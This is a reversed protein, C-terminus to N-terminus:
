DLRLGFKIVWNGIRFYMELNVRGNNKQWNQNFWLGTFTVKTEVFIKFTPEFHFRLTILLNLPRYCTGPPEVRTCKGNLDFKLAVEYNFVRKLNSLLVHKISNRESFKLLKLALTKELDQFLIPGNKLLWFTLLNHSLRFGIKFLGFKHLAMRNVDLTIMGMQIITPLGLTSLANWGRGKKNSHFYIKLISHIWVFRAALRSFRELNMNWNQKRKLFLSFFQM